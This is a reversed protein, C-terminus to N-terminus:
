MTKTQHVAKPEERKPKPVHSRASQWSLGLGQYRWTFNSFFPNHSKVVKTKTQHVAKPEERKPKPVHSRTSQCCRHTVPCQRPRKLQDPSSLNQALRSFVRVAERRSAKQAPDLHTPMAHQLYIHTRIDEYLRMRTSVHMHQKDVAGTQKAEKSDCCWSTCTYKHWALAQVFM